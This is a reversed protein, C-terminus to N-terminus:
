SGAVPHFCGMANLAHQFIALAGTEGIDACLALYLRRLEAGQQMLLANRTGRSVSSRSAELTRRSVEVETQVLAAKGRTSLNALDADSFRRRYLNQLAFPAIEDDLHPPRRMACKVLARLPDPLSYTLLRIGGERRLPNSVAYRSVPPQPQSPQSSSGGFLVAM